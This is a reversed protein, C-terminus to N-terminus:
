EDNEGKPNGDWLMSGEIRGKEADLQAVAELNGNHLLVERDRLIEQLRKMKEQLRPIQEEEITGAAVMDIIVVKDHIESGIRHVRGECQTNDIMSWSRQLFVIVGARTLTIGVGGAKITMLMVQAKGGQFDEINVKRQPLSIDGTILRYTIGRKEMRAQALYILQSSEAVVVLPQRDMEDIIADLEDLKSSPESLHVEGMDDVTAFASSFQLLRVNKTLSNTAFVYSGDELKTLMDDEMQKYAKRQKPTMEVYRPEPRVVPPLFPLVLSKPMRRMRPNLINEFEQKHEPIVGTINLGGFPSWGQMCYREIYKTKVPYDEPAIGHMVSWLNGAHDGIPTGTLGFSFKVEKGHQVSWCARTQKAKPDQIRHAEDIVVTHFDIDNLEKKEKESDSLRVTGYPALRSHIRVAEINIVVAVKYGAAIAERAESFLKRRKVMSGTIDFVVVDPDGRPIDRAWETFWISKVTNPCIVCVPFPDRGWAHLRRIASITQTTKGTGLDDTLLGRVARVLFEAGVDQFPYLGPETVVGGAWEPVMRIENAPGVRTNYENWSWDHLLPGIELRQGFVGRLAQCSGWSAPVRWRGFKFGSGPISKVLDKESFTTTMAIILTNDEDLALEAYAM